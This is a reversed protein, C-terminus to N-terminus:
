FEDLSMTICYPLYGLHSKDVSTYYTGFQSKFMQYGRCRILKMLFPTPEYILNCIHLEYILSKVTLLSNEFIHLIIHLVILFLKFAKFYYLFLICYLKLFLISDM